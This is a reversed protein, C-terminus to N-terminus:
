FDMSRCRYGENLSRLLETKEIRISGSVLKISALRREDLWREICQRSKGLIHAVEDISLLEGAKLLEAQLM